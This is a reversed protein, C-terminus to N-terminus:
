APAGETLVAETSELAASRALALAGRLPADFPHDALVLEPPYPASAALADALVPRILNWSRTLGGGVVVRQPNIAIVLNVLHFALEDLFDRCAAAIRADDGSRQFLAAIDGGTFRTALTALASGSVVDELREIDGARYPRRLSYGIEGAAGNRGALVTAGTVIALALGTGLNLYVGPDVGTLGGDALEAQAAAKVDTAMRLAAGPFARRLQAGFALREWGPVNPALEVRDDYPIGFTAAGVAAVQRGPAVALLLQEAAAVARGFTHAARDGALVPVTTNGVRAGDLEAVALAIKTGGFDAGLVVPRRQM